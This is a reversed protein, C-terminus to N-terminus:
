FILKLGGQFVRAGYGTVTSTVQGFSSSLLSASGPNSFDPHNLANFAELRFDLKFREGLPFYRSLQADLQVYKPGRVSNRGVDGFTGTTNQAFASANLFNRNGANTKTLTKHTYLDDPNVLNPRDNGTATLSNDVGSTVTFPSGDHIQLLPALEWNNLALSKWGDLHFHSEAVLATNFIARHDFGCNARDARINNPNQVTTGAFDGQADEIDFCHSWTYNSFLSFDSSVRHQITAIMGNYSANAGDSILISGAGGGAYKKGQSPNDLTLLYRSSTNGLTSSGPIYVAPDLPLGLGVFSSQSGIYDLQFQWGHRLEQQLSATWQFTYTPHFHPPLVIFQAQNGFTTSAPPKFPLPFPNSPTSGNSWPSAFNLAVNGPVNSIATAFPPNQNVRQATFFNPEDYVLASGARLVTRGQGTPDFTIGVRPSFQWPSNQTFGAPVGADGFYLSGAPANPFVTSHTNSLLDNMNFVSGRRFKDVPIFEPDWRVGASLVLRKTAHFIDQVYLSPIPARLANQQSKSQQFANLAGTLFDLNADAGTGGKSTGAPGKQSYVGTITFDGNSEYLNNINLQARVYEGGFALQHKGLLMNVDDTFSFTNVNFAAQACTGCYTSFKNTVTLELFNDLPAYSDIGLTGPGIGQAAAGRDDRRRSGTAHFSNVFHSNIIYTEGLTLSQARERNGSQTTILVNTPSFFAPSTYGDLFYRGYLSHKQNITWDVRGIFENEVQQSPISYFVLGCPDTTAPLYKKLALSPASFYSPSIQDNPLPVGTQPNLLQIAKGSAQCGAGDTVSFDGLYNAPTPVFAQTLSQSQDAKLRQYGGFFFLKDTIIRGGFTGGYQNQHLTDKTTSFFNTADIFNNRIFEFATGHWQNSGSRTVVNVLGGPHLGSQAGLASTEVSFQNVADPFPFPLNVNTMYDNHDGGDLRYDTANGMGGAVSVVVSSYFTKSGQMDNAPASASGGSLTILSTVQRGNLPLETLTKEDITQKFSPDETQLAIGNARVEVRQAAQGVTMSVNINISSGVELVIGAQSYHEFGSASVDLNYVGIPINPFSYLGDAGSKVTHQIQTATNTLVVPADQMVAGTADSITGQISGTGATQCNGDAALSFAAILFFVGLLIPSLRKCNSSYADM